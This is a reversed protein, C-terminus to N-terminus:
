GAAAALQPGCREACALLPSSPSPLPHPPPRCLPRHTDILRMCGRALTVCRGPPCRQVTGHRLTGHRARCNKRCLTRLGRLCAPHARVCALHHASVDLANSQLLQKGLDMPRYVDHSELLAAQMHVCLSCFLSLRKICVSHYLRLWPLLWARRAWVCRPEAAQWRLGPHGCHTRVGRTCSRVQVFLIDQISPISGDLLDTMMSLIKDAPTGSDIQAKPKYNDLAMALEAALVEQQKLLKNHESQLMLMQDREAQLEDHVKAVLDQAPCSLVPCRPVILYWRPRTCRLSACLARHLVVALPQGALRQQRSDLALAMAPLVNKCATPM